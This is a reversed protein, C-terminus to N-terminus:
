RLMIKAYQAKHPCVGGNMRKGFNCNMCLTQYSDPFGDKVIKVYLHVGSIRNGDNTKVVHGDNYVHDMSLFEFTDEGCCVCVRGYNDFVM